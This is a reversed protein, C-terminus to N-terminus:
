LILQIDKNIRSKDVSEPILTDWLLKKPDPCGLTASILELVLYLVSGLKKRCPHNVMEEIEEPDKPAM